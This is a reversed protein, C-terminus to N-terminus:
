RILVREGEVHHLIALVENEADAGRAGVGDVQMGTLQVGSDGLGVSELDFRGM